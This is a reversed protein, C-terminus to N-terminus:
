DLAGLFEKGSYDEAGKVGFDGEDINNVGLKSTRHM